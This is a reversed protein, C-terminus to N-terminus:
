SLEREQRTKRKRKLERSRGTTNLTPSFAEGDNMKLEKFCEEPNEELFEQQELMVYCNTAATPFLQSGKRPGQTRKVKECSDKDPLNGRKSKKLKQWREKDPLNERKSIKPREKKKRYKDARACDTSPVVATAMM